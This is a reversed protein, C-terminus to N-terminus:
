CFNSITSLVGNYFYWTRIALKIHKGKIIAIIIQLSEVIWLSIEHSVSAILKTKNKHRFLSCQIYTHMRAFHLLTCNINWSVIAWTLIHPGKALSIKKANILTIATTFRKFWFQFPPQKTHRITVYFVILLVWVAACNGVLLVNWLVFM